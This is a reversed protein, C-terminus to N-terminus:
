KCVKGSQSFSLVHPLATQSQSTTTFDNLYFFLVHEHYHTISINCFDLNSGNKNCGSMYTCFLKCLAM